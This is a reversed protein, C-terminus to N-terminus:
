EPFITWLTPSPDPAATYASLMNPHFHERSCQWLGRCAASCVRLAGWHVRGGFPAKGNCHISSRRHLLPVGHGLSHPATTSGLPSGLPSGSPKARIAGAPGSKEVPQLASLCYNRRKGRTNFFFVPFSSSSFPGM